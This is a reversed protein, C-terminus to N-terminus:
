ILQQKGTVIPPPAIDIIKNLEEGNSALGSLLLKNSSEMLLTDSVVGGTTQRLKALVSEYGGIEKTLSTFVKEAKNAQMGIENLQGVAQGFQQLVAASFIGQVVNGMDTFSQKTSKNAAEMKKTEDGAGKVATKYKNMVASFNDKASITITVDRNAM